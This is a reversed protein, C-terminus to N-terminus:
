KDDQFRSFRTDKRLKEDLEQFKKLAKQYHQSARETLIDIKFSVEAFRKEYAQEEEATVHEGKNQLENFKSELEKSESELRKHIIDSRELMRNKLMEFASSRLEQYSEKSTIDEIKKNKQLL